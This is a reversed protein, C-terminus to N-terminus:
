FDLLHPMFDSYTKVGAETIQPQRPKTFLSAPMTEGQEIRSWELVFELTQEAESTNDHDSFNLKMGDYM